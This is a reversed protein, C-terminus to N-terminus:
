IARPKFPHSTADAGKTTHRQISIRNNARAVIARQWKREAATIREEDPTYAEQFLFKTAAVADPSRSAIEAALTRAELLPDAALHTVLGLAHAEIGAIVRGTMALEKVVDIRVLERLTVVGGMDPVLGWKSEMISWRSDPTAFRVDCGLALQLGAGFCSGHVAAIVPVGIERWALSWRQFKNTYPLLLQALNAATRAPQGLASKVDLGACFSPGDGALIIARIAREGRLRDAAALVADLMAFSMGNHKDPRHLRVNAIGDAIDLRVLDSM